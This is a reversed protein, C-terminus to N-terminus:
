LHLGRTAVLMEDLVKMLRPVEIPKTLYAQVGATKLRQIQTPTADASIVVVPIQGTTHKNRLLKLVEEGHIDPLHLDLLILDPKESQALEVGSRGFGTSVLRIEPRRSLIREVLRLNSRNDEIYLVTAEVDCISPADTETSPELTELPNPTSRLEIWFTSGRGAESEVGIRGNMLEILRKSLALGLGTGEVDTNEAGLRDFATFLQTLKEAPIGHGSDIVELRVLDGDGNNGPSRHVLVRVEGNRRNYKIGNSLLNLIVQKLRQRDAAVYVDLAEAEPSTLTIKREQALPKVLTIADRLLGSLRVPELSITMQGSEIRSIDLVENILDLLHRGASVIHKISEDQDASLKELELLQGFGLIANLPTRLEHSMRSLFESKSYNAREAEERAQRLAQEYEKRITVDSAIGAIRYVERDKNRIPYARDAIWRIEGDPRVVRYEEVFDGRAAKEKFADFVRQRDEHHIAKLWQLPNQYLQHLPRGWIREYAASVYLIKGGDASTMWFVDAIHAAMQGVREENERRQVEIQGRETDVVFLRRATWAILLLFILVLTTSYIATGFNTDLFERRQAWLRIWGLGIPLVFALPLLRRAVMGGATDSTIVAMIGETPRALLTGTSLLLFGAATHVAMPTFHGLEYFAIVHYLYGIVALTASVISLVSLMESLRHGRRTKTDLLLLAAGTVLFNFATNPAMRNPRANGGAAALERDFLWQDLGIDIGFLISMMKFAGTLLVFVATARALKKRRPTVTPDCSVFHLSIGAVIFGIATMPNMAVLGPIVCKLREIMFVWGILVASGLLVLGLSACRCAVM